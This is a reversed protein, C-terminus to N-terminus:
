PRNMSNPESPGYATCWEDFIGAAVFHGACSRSAAIHLTVNTGFRATIVVEVVSTSPAPFAITRQKIHIELLLVLCLDFCGLFLRPLFNRARVRSEVSFHQVEFKRLPDLRIILLPLFRAL